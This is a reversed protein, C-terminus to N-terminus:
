PTMCLGKELRHINRRLLAFEENPRRAASSYAAIGALVAQHERRFAPSVCLYYFSSMLGSRSAVPRVLVQLWQVTRQWSQRVHMGLRAFANRARRKNVKRVAVDRRVTASVASVPKTM